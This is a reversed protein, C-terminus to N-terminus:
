LTEIVESLEKLAEALIDARVDGGSNAVRAIQNLNNGIRSLQAIIALTERTKPAENLAVQRVYAAVTREHSAALEVLKAHEEDTLRVLIIKNRKRKETGSSM